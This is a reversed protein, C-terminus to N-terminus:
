REEESRKLAGVEGSNVGGRGGGRGVNRGEAGVKKISGEGEELPVAGHKRETVETGAGFLSNFGKGITESVATGKKTM